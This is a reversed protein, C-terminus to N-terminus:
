AAAFNLDGATFFSVMGYRIPQLGSTCDRTHRFEACIGAHLPKRCLALALGAATAGITSRITPCSRRTLGGVDFPARSSSVSAYLKAAFALSTTAPADRSRAASRPRNIMGSMIVILFPLDLDLAVNCGDRSSRPRDRRARSLREDASAASTRSRSPPRCPEVTALLHDPHVVWLPHHGLLIDRM